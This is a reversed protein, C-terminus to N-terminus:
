PTFNTSFWASWWAQQVQIWTHFGTLCALRPEMHQEHDIVSGIDILDGKSAGFDGEVPHKHLLTSRVPRQQRTIQKYKTHTHMLMCNIIQEWSKLAPKVDKHDVAASLKYSCCHPDLTHHSAEERLRELQYITHCRYQVVPNCLPAPTQHRLCGHTTQKGRIVCSCLCCQTHATALRCRMCICSQGQSFATSSNM